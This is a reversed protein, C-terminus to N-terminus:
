LTSHQLTKKKKKKKKTTEKRKGGIEKGAEEPMKVPSHLLDAVMENKKKIEKKEAGKAKREM